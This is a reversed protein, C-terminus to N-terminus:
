PQRALVLKQSLEQGQASITRAQTLTKGDESLTYRDTITVEGDPTSVTSVMVLVVGDWRLTSTLESPGVM